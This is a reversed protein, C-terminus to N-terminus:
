SGPEEDTGLYLFGSFLHEERSREGHELLFGWPRAKQFGPGELGM